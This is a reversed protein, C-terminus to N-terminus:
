PGQLLELVARTPMSSIACGPPQRQVDCASAFAMSMRDVMTLRVIATALARSTRASAGPAHVDM